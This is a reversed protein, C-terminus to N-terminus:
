NAQNVPVIGFDDPGLDDIKGSPIPVFGSLLDEQVGAEPWALDLIRTHNIGSPAGGVRWQQATAEVDRIRRVGSSPFGEQSMVLAAYGWSAPDGSALLSRPIRVVVKGKDGFTIVDFSPKTEEWAGDRAAVYIAPDWGEVTIGYEWGDGAALAANRGPILLRAGTGAGPDTDIYVDFAQISLGRPSGWPNQIPAVVEFTFVLDDNETGVQFRKLDYSGAGFVGDLPYTYTGPGHDDGQPDEVDLFVDVNSIDPVQFAMPGTAPFLGLVPAPVGELTGTVDLKALLTDGPELAGLASLPIAAEVFGEGVASRVDTCAEPNVAASDAPCLSVVDGDWFVQTTAGFGLVAGNTSVPVKVGTPAGLYTSWVGMVSNWRLYLNEKDFAWEISMSFFDYLGTGVWDDGAGDITITVLDTPSRDATAPRQPIIPVGVFTPREVGLADYVQGLLERFASDFYGDDGSDQDAGYWWFWDSGEAFLMKDLAEAYAEESVSGEAKALDARVDYLYDWATAEEPEGIWTAFNPQFWAGPWVEELPEPQSYRLLYGSPTITGVWDADSLNRYLARLFDKGDNEYHEWANEGDLIVSIVPPSDGGLKGEAELLDRVNRLRRMFDDAAAEGSMGSYEFGLQDSLRVDRFFMAVPENRKLQAAWPSYLETEVVTDNSDRSFSGLGLSKALVDEGSAVWNVGNKSFLSMVLQAVSGEGPWMGTPRRGLLREATDLGRIVHEDADPIEQFRNVPLIAAADGVSALATDAILPLIPHALPTTTVEIKGEDWLRAHLPITEQIIRLHEAFLVEKDAEAFGRGKAVLAALPEVALFDPDTWGLNFLVQLDRFDAETWSAVSNDVGRSAREDALEQFRPFRAIIKPNVDFFRELLFRKQNEALEAAPTEAAVWYADKAGAALDELQLMLVPTLNFTARVDPFEDHLAAMDYYDKTAHVRVWPRTYVGDADKPYFPQHQHWMLMLYFGADDKVVPAPTVPPTITTTPESDSQPTCASVLVALASLVNITRRMIAPNERAGGDIM